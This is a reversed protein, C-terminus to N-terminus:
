TEQPSLDHGDHVETKHNEIHRELDHIDFLVRRGQRVCPLTRLKQLNRVSWPSVGLYRAAERVSYLRKLLQESM